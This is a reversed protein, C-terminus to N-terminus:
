RPTFRVGTNPQISNATNISFPVVVTGDPSELWTTASNGTVRGSDTSDMPGYHFEIVGTDILHVQFNLDGGGSFKMHNWSVITRDTARWLAVSSNTAVYLDDWFPALVGNPVSTSPTSDNSYYPSGLAAASLTLFGNSSVGVNTSFATGFYTFPAPLAPNAYSDEDFGGSATWAAAPLDSGAPPAVFAGAITSKVYPNCGWLRAPSGRQPPVQGGYTATSLCSSTTGSSTVVSDFEVSSGYGGDAPRAFTVTAGADGFGAFLSGGDLPLSFGGGWALAVGADDNLAADTTAGIVTPVGPQLVFGAPLVFSGNANLQWGGLDLAAANNNLLEVYQGNLGVAAAPRFMLESITLDQGPVVAHSLEDLPAYVEGAQVFGGYHSSRTVKLSVPPTVPAFFYLATNSAPTGAATVALTRSLDQVGVTFSPAANLVMTQYHFSLVGRQTLRAQFTLETNATTGAQLKNWQVILTENPADGVVQLFVGSTATLTLNDWYPAILGAAASSATSPLTARTANVAPAANFAMWGARSITLSSGVRQGWLRSAFNVPVQVVDTGQALVRQGTGAIDIFSSQTSTLVQGHPFGHLTVGPDSSLSVTAGSLPTVPARGVAPGSGTVTVASDQSLSAGLLNDAVMTLTTSQPLYVTAAGSAASAGTLSYVADGTADTVRVRQAGPADWTLTVPAGFAVTAPSASFTLATPVGVTEVSAVRSVSVGAANTAVLELTFPQTSQTPFQFYGATVRAADGTSFVASGDVRLEVQTAGHTQWRVQCLAGQAIVTPTEFRDIGPALSVPVELTRDLGDAGKTARVVYTEVPAVVGGDALQPVTDVFSGEAVEAAAATYLTGRAATSITLGEAGASTWSLTVAGGPAVAAPTATLTVVAPQVTVTAQATGLDTTLVYTTDELPTLTLAGAAVQGQTDLAVGNATLAATTAGPAFWVLSTRAGGAVLAPLADLTVGALPETAEVVLAKADDGGPGHATLVFRANTAVTVTLSSQFANTAVGLDGTDVSLLSVSTANAVKWSLTVEGGKEVAVASATFAEITAAPPVVTEPKQLHCGALSAVAAVLLTRHLLPNM